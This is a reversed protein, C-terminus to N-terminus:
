GDLADASLYGVRHDRERWGWAWGGACELLQFREGPLLAGVVEGGISALLQAEAACTRAM